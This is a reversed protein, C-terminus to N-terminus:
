QEGKLVILVDVENYRSLIMIKSFPSIDLCHKIDKANSLIKFFRIDAYKFYEEQDVILLELHHLEQYYNSSKKNKDEILSIIKQKYLDFNPIQLMARVIDMEEWTPTASQKQYVKFALSEKEDPELMKKHLVKAKDSSVYLETIEVGFLVDSEKDKLLFDPREDAYIEFTNIDYVKKLCEFEHQKKLM